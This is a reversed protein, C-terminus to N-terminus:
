ANDGDKTAEKAKGKETLSLYLWDNRYNRANQLSMGRREVFYGVVADAIAFRMLMEREKFKTIKYLECNTNLVALLEQAEEEYLYDWPTEGELVQEIGTLKIETGDELRILSVSIKLIPEPELTGGNGGGGGEQTGGTGAGSGTGGPGAGKEVGIPLLGLRIRMENVAKRNKVDSRPGRSIERSAAVVPKLYEKMASCVIQWLESQNQVGMKFFNAEIFDLHVEGIIRSTMLHAAFWEKNWPQLLQQQRYINFGFDDGNHTQNDIGVWGTIHYKSLPGVKLDIQIESEAIFTYTRPIALKGNVFIKDGQQLHAKFAEGLKIYVSGVAINKQRLQRIVIATGHKAEKLYGENESEVTEIEVDWSKRERTRRSWEELDFAIRHEENEDLPRTYIGWWHGLSACATKMGLGFHGKRAKNGHSIGDMNVGPSLADELISEKMGMGNDIIIIEDNEQDITVSINSAVGAVSADLSNAVIESIADAATFSTAGIIDMLRPAPAINVTRKVM